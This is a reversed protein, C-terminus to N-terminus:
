CACGAISFTTCLDFNEVNGKGVIYSTMCFESDELANDGCLSPNIWNKEPDTYSTGVYCKIYGTESEAWGYEILLLVSCILLVNM